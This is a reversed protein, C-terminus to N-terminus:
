LFVGVYTNEQSIQSITLFVEPPQKRLLRKSSKCHKRSGITLNCIKNVREHRLDRDYLFWDMSKCLLDTSQTRYSLVETLSSNFSSYCKCILEFVTNQNKLQIIKKKKLKERINRKSGWWLNESTELPFPVNLFFPDITSRCFEDFFLSCQCFNYKM